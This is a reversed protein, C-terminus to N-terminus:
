IGYKYFETQGNVTYLTTKKKITSLTHGQTDALTPCLSLSLADKAPEVVQKSGSTRPKIGLGQYSLWDPTLVRSWSLWEPM